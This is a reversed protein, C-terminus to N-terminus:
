VDKLKRAPAFGVAGLLLVIADSPVKNNWNDIIKKNMEYVNKFPSNCYQIVKEHFLHTDAIFYVKDKYFYALKLPKSLNRLKNM